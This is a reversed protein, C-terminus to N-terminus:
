GAAFLEDGGGELCGVGGGRGVRLFAEFVDDLDPALPLGEVWGDDFGEVGLELFDVLGAKLGPAGKAAAAAAAVILEARVPPWAAGCGWPQLGRFALVYCHHSRLKAM